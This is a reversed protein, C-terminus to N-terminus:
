DDNGEDGVLDFVSAGVMEGLDGGHLSEAFGPTLLGILKAIAHTEDLRREMLELRSILARTSSGM